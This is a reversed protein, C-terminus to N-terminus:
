TLYGVHVETYPTLVRGQLPHTRDREAASVRLHARGTESGERRPLHGSVVGGDLLAQVGAFPCTTPVCSTSRTVVTGIASGACRWRGARWSDRRRGVIVM